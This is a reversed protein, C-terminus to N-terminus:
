TLAVFRTQIRAAYGGRLSTDPIDRQVSEGMRSAFNRLARFADLFTNFAGKALKRVLDGNRM